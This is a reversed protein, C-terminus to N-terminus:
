GTTYPCSGHTGHEHCQDPVITASTLCDRLDTRALQTDPVLHVLAAQTGTFNVFPNHQLRVPTPTSPPSSNTYPRERRAPEQDRRASSPPLSQPYGEVDGRPPSHDGTPASITHNVYDRSNPRPGACADSCAHTRTGSSPAAEINAGFLEAARTTVGFYVTGPSKGRSRTSTRPLPTAASAVRRSIRHRDCTDPSAAQSTLGGTV